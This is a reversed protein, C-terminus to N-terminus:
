RKFKFRQIAMVRSGRSGITNDNTVLLQNLYVGLFKGFILVKLAVGHLRHFFL